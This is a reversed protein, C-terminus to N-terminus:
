FVSYRFVNCDCLEPKDASVGHKVPIKEIDVDMVFLRRWLVARLGCVALKRVLVDLVRTDLRFAANEAILVESPGTRFFASHM